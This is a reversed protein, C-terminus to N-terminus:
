AALALARPRVFLDDALMTSLIGVFAMNDGFGTARGDRCKAVLQQVAQPDFYGAERLRPGGLLEAVCEEARAGRFFSQSDPARYPQKVRRRIADPLLGQAANKLIYKETLGRLKYRPPLRKAEARRRQMLSRRLQAEALTQEQRLAPLTQRKEKELM